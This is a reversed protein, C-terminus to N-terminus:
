TCPWKQSHKALLNKPVTECTNHYWINHVDCCIMLGDEQLRCSRCTYFVEVKETKNSSQIRRKTTKVPFSHMQRKELCEALHRRMEPIRFKIDEPNQGSCIAM